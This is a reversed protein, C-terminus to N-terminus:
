FRFKVREFKLQKTEMPRSLSWLRVASTPAFELEGLHRGLDLYDLERRWYNLYKLMRIMTELRDEEDAAPDALTEGAIKSVTEWFVRYIIAQNMSKLHDGDSNRYLEDTAERTQKLYYLEVIHFVWAISEALMHLRRHTELLAFGGNLSVTFMMEKTEIDEVKSACGDSTREYKFDDDDIEFKYEDLIDQPVPPRGDSERYCAYEEYITVLHNCAMHISPFDHPKCIAGGIIKFPKPNPKKQM